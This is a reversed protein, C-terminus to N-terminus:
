KDDIEIEPGEIKFGVTGEEEVAEFTSRMRVGFFESVVEEVAERELADFHAAIHLPAEIEAGINEMLFEWAAEAHEDNTAAGPAMWGFLAAAGPHDAWREVIQWSMGKDNELFWFGEDTPGVLTLKM